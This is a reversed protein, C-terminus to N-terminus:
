TDDEVCREETTTEHGVVSRRSSAEEKDRNLIKDRDLNQSQVPTIPKIPNLQKPKKISSDREKQHQSGVLAGLGGSAKFSPQKKFKKERAAALAAKAEEEERKKKLKLREIKAIQKRREDEELIMVYEYLSNVLSEGM